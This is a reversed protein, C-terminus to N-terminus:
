KGNPVPQDNQQDHHHHEAGLLELVHTRIQAAGDLTELVSHLVSRGGSSFGAGGAPCTLLAALASFVVMSTSALVLDQDTRQLGSVGHDVEANRLDRQNARHRQDDDPRLFQRAHGAGDAGQQALRLAIHRIDLGLDVPRHFQVFELLHLFVTSLAARSTSCVM